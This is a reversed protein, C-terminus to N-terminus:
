GGSLAQMVYLEESERIPDSLKERDHAQTEGVFLVVHRRLVGQEDLVYSRVKPHRGFYAELVDKVTTGPVTETPCDVHRSLHSTFSVRPV